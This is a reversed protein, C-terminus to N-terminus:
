ALGIARLKADIQWQEYLGNGLAMVDARYLLVLARLLEPDKFTRSLQDLKTRGEV